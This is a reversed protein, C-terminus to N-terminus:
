GVPNANEHPNNPLTVQLRTGPSASEIVLSGGLEKARERIGAIGVGPATAANCDVGKGFDRVTLEISRAEERLEIEARMSGSHRHVNTLSEQVIRFITLELTNSLRPLVKPARFEVQIGSRKTFGDIFFGLAALLGREDLLPPHLLYSQTRVELLANEAMIIAEALLQERVKSDLPRSSECIRGLNISLAALLQATSDHLERAIRRREEDQVRLLRQSLQRLQEEARKQETINRVIATTGLITGDDDRLPFVSLEVDLPTGDKAIRVSEMRYVSEGARVRRKVSTAFEHLEPPTITLTSRGMMEEAAYGFVREAGRNWSVIKGTLDSRIVADEMQDVVMAAERLKETRERVRLELEERSKELEERVARLESIDTVTGILGIVAGKEDRVEAVEGYVWITKGNPQLYRYESRFPANSEATRKWELRIRARDEPHIAREWGMGLADEFTLGTFQCWRENVYTCNGFQDCHFIAVPSIRTLKAMWGNETAEPIHVREPEDM